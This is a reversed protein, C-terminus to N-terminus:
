RVAVHNMMDIIVFLMLIRPVIMKMLMVATMLLLLMQMWPIVDMPDYGHFQQFAERQPYAL